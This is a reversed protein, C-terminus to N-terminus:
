NAVLDILRWLPKHFDNWNSSAAKQYNIGFFGIIKILTICAKGGIDGLHCDISNFHCNNKM